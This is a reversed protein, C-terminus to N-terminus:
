ANKEATNRHLTTVFDTAHRLEKEAPSMVSHGNQGIQGAAM